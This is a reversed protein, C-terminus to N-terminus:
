RELIEAFSSRFRCRTSCERGHGHAFPLPISLRPHPDRHGIQRRGHAVGAGVRLIALLSRTRMEVLGAAEAACMDTAVSVNQLPQSSTCALANLRPRQIRVSKPIPV